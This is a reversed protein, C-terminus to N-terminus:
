SKKWKGYIGPEHVAKEIINLFDKRPIAQAGFSQLHRTEQQADIIHFLWGTLRKILYVFAVKSANSKLHFMSEGFFAKGISVGYLGGVLEGEFYTEVSHAFGKEHLKIYAEKMGTTIWTGEQAQRPVRSCHEIVEEFATDFSVQFTERRILQKLSDSVKFKDPFLVMRPDPSWWMIPNDENYWPFIGHSYALLLREVSLDSGIALLGDDSALGPDPFSLSDDLLYVPM